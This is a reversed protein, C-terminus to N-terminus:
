DGHANHVLFTYISVSLGYDCGFLIRGDGYYPKYPINTTTHNAVIWTSDNFSSDIEPLSDHFMWGSLTPVSVGILSTPRQLQGVLAGHKSVTSSSSISSSVIAGNWTVAKINSPAIVTLMADTKLDGRLSLTDGSISADRVLYPGGVLISQNTGLSWHNKLPDTPQGAIVPAWFTAATASDIYLVLLAPSDVVTAQGSLGSLITVVNPNGRLGSSATVVIESISVDAPPGFYAFEHQQSSDGYLVLVDRDGIVGAFFIQATSYLLSSSRGYSYDTVIVKSQRGGLTIDSAVRPIQIAGQTTSVTLKFATNDRIL